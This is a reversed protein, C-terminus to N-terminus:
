RGGKLIYTDLLDVKIKDHKWGASILTLINRISRRLYDEIDPLIQEIIHPNVAHNGHVIDNRMKYADSVRKYITKREDADIGILYAARLALKYRLEPVNNLYLAEFAIMHDILRKDTEGTYSSHFRQLAVDISSSDKHNIWTPLCKLIIDLLENIAPIESSNLVYKSPEKFMYDTNSCNLWDPSLAGQEAGDPFPIALPGATVLGPKLLRLVTVFCFILHESQIFSTIGLIDRPSHGKGDNLSPPSDLYPLYAAWASNIQTDNEWFSGERLSYRRLVQRLEESDRSIRIGNAIVVEPLDCEFPYLPCICYPKTMNRIIDVFTNSKM